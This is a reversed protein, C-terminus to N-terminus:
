ARRARAKKLKAERERRAKEAIWFAEAKEFTIEGKLVRLKLELPWEKPFHIM